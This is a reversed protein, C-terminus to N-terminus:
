KGRVFMRGIVKQVAPQRATAKRWMERHKPDMVEIDDSLRNHPLELTRKLPQQQLRLQQQASSLSTCLVSCCAASFSTPYRDFLTFQVLGANFQVRSDLSSRLAQIIELRRSSKNTLFVKTKETLSIQLMM